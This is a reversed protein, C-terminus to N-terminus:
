MPVSLVSVEDRESQTIMVGNMDIEDCSRSGPKGSQSMSMKLTNNELEEGALFLHPEKM